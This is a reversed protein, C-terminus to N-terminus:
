ADFGLDLIEQKTLVYPNKRPLEVQLPGASVTETGTLGVQFPNVSALQGPETQMRIDFMWQAQLPDEATVNLGAMEGRLIALMTAITAIFTSPMFRTGRLNSLADIVVFIIVDEESKDRLLSRTIAEVRDIDGDEAFPFNDEYELPIAAQEDQDRSLQDMIVNSTNGQAAARSSPVILNYFSKRLLLASGQTLRPNEDAAPPLYFYADAM